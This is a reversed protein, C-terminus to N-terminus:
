PHNQESETIGKKKTRAFPEKDPIWFFLVPAALGFCFATGSIRLSTRDTGCPKFLSLQYFGHGKGRKGPFVPEHVNFATGITEASIAGPYARDASNKQMFIFNQNGTNKFTGVSFGMYM